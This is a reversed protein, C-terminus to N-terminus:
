EVVLVGMMGSGLHEAIHCHFMWDGPNSVDLLIDVTHGAPVLVTDKWVFNDTAVDDDSLVLFRQGHFHIPHQMPHMSDKKNVIRIKLIDGVKAEYTLKENVAGTEEDMLKWQAMDGMPMASMGNDEWEIGDAPIEGMMMGGHNMGGMMSMDLVLTHDVPKSFSERFRDVDSIVDDNARLEKFESAYSPSADEPGVTVAGLAYSRDPTRHTIAYTGANEFFVDVIARESPSLTVSEVTHEREYRGNDGGVMKMAAGGFDIRFTRTSSVNTLFYRVVEGKSVNSAYSTKANVLMVNGFRGMLTKDPKTRGFPALGGDQELLVDSIALAEERNAPAYATPNKPTVVINGYLGAPQQLDERVHTHYWYIGEDPVTITYEFSGGVPIEDQTLGAAGDFRSDLRLGHWHVTTTQDIGNHVNVTLTAGQPVRLLPGPIQGNYGYMAIEKGKITTRVLTPDLQVTDGDKVDIPTSPKAAPLSAIDINEGPLFAGTELSDGGTAQMGHGGHMGGMPSPTPACAALFITGIIIFSHKNM